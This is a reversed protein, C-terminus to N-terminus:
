EIPHTGIGPTSIMQVRHGRRRLIAALVRSGEGSIEANFNIFALNMGQEQERRERGTGQRGKEGPNNPKIGSDIM